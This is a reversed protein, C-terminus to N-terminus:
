ASTEALVEMELAAQFDHYGFGSPLMNTKLDPCSYILFSLIVIQAHWFLSLPGMLTHLSLKVTASHIPLFPPGVM